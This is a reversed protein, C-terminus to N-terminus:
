ANKEKLKAEIIDRLKLLSDDCVEGDPTWWHMEKPDDDNDYDEHIDFGAQYAAVMVDEDTLGAWERRPPVLITQIQSDASRQGRYVNGDGYCDMEQQVDQGSAEAIAARLANFARYQLVRWEAKSMDHKSDLAELAMKMAEISV